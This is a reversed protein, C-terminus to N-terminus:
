ESTRHQEQKAEPDPATGRLLRLIRDHLEPHRNWLDMLEEKSM